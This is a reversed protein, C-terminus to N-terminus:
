LKITVRGKGAKVIQLLDDVKKSGSIIINTKSKAAVAALEALDAVTKRASTLDVHAGAAILM